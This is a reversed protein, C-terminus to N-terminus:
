LLLRVNSPIFDNINLIYGSCIVRNALSEVLLKTRLFLLVSNIYARQWTRTLIALYYTTINVVVDRKMHPISFMYQTTIDYTQYPYRAYIEVLSSITGRSNGVDNNIRVKISNPFYRM